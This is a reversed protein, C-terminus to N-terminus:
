SRYQQEFIIRTILHLLILHASCTARIPLPSTCVPNQHPFRLSLGSSLTLRLHSIGNFHLMLFHSPYAHVPNIDGVVPVLPTIKHIRHHFMPNWLIHPIEQSASCSPINGPPYLRGTRLASLMLTKFDPLRLNTSIELGLWAQVLIAKGRTM